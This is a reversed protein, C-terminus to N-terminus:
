MKTSELSRLLFHFYCERANWILLTCPTYVTELTIEANALLAVRNLKRFFVGSIAPKTVSFSHPLIRNFIYMVQLFYPLGLLNESLSLNQSFLKGTIRRFEYGRNHLSSFNSGKKTTNSLTGRLVRTETM